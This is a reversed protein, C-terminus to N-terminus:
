SAGIAEDVKLLLAETPRGDIRLDNDLQFDQIAAETRSDLKGSIPGSYYDLKRLKEQLEVLLPKGSSRKDAIQPANKGDNGADVESASTEVSDVNDSDGSSKGFRDNVTSTVKGITSDVTACSSLFLSVALLVVLHTYRSNSFNRTRQQNSLLRYIPIQMAILLITTTSIHTHSNVTPSSDNVVPKV